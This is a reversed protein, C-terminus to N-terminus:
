HTQLGFPGTAPGYNTNPTLTPNMSMFPKSHSGNFNNSTNHISKGMSVSMGGVWINDNNFMDNYVNSPLNEQSFQTDIINSPIYRYIIQPPPCQLDSKLWSISFCICGIMFLLFAFFSLFDM